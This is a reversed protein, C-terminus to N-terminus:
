VLREMLESSRTDRETEYEDPLGISSFVAGLRQTLHYLYPPKLRGIREHSIEYSRSSSRLAVANERLERLVRLYVVYGTGADDDDLLCNLFMADGPLQKLYSALDNALNKRATNGPKHLIEAALCYIDCQEALPRSAAEACSRYVQTVPLFTDRETPSLKLTECIRDPDSQLVWQTARDISIPQTFEALHDSQAERMLKALRQGLENRIKEIRKPIYFIALYIDTPLVPVCSLRGAHKYRALDCDATVVILVGEWPDKSPELPRLLDGQGLPRADLVDEFESFKALKTEEM